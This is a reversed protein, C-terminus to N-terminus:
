KFYELLREADDDLYELPDNICNFCSCNKCQNIESRKFSLMKRLHEKRLDGNWIEKLTNKTFNGISFDHTLGPISCPYVEGDVGAQLFYFCQACIDRKKSFAEGYLNRTEDVIEHLNDMSQQMVILHEIYIRDSIGGFLEYFKERDNEKKLIADICKMYIKTKGRHEYLYTLNNIFQKFDLKVGCVQEYTEANIGQISININTIGASLLADIYDRTLLAGNTLVEVREAIGADVAYRVFDPFRPNMLPEGLGSFVIRKIGLERLQSILKKYIGFDMHQMKHGKEAFVGDEKDHTSHMCYYCKFNCYKTQEIYITFPHNLPIIDALRQRKTDYNPKIKIDM